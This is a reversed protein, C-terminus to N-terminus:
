FTKLPTRCIPCISRRDVWNQLCIEHFYHKCPTEMCSKLTESIFSEQIGSDGKEGITADLEEAESPKLKLSHYCISCESDQIERPLKEIKVILRHVGAKFRKPIFFTPGLKSQLYNIITGVLLLGFLIYGFAPFPRMRALSNSMGRILIGFYLTPWWTCIQIYVSFCQKSNRIATEVVQVLPFTSLIIFFITYLFYRMFFITVAYSGMITVMSYVLFRGKPSNLSNEQIRPHDAYRSLFIVFATKYSTTTYIVLTFAVMLYVWATSSLTMLLLMVFFGFYQFYLTTLIMFSVYGLNARTYFDFDRGDFKYNAYVNLALLSLCSLFYAAVSLWSTEEPVGFRMKSLLNLQMEDSFIEMSINLDTPDTDRSIDFPTNKSKSTLRMTITAQPYQTSKHIDFIDQYYIAFKKVPDTTNSKLMFTSTINDYSSTTLNVVFYCKKGDIYEDNQLTLIIRTENKETDVLYYMRSMGTNKDFGNFLKSSSSIQQRNEWTGIFEAVAEFVKIRATFNTITTNSSNNSPTSNNIDSTNNVTTGNNDLFVYSQLGGTIESFKANLPFDPDDMHKVEKEFFKKVDRDSWIHTSAPKWSFPSELQNVLRLCLLVCVLVGASLYLM